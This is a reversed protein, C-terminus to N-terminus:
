DTPISRLTTLGGQKFFCPPSKKDKKSRAYKSGNKDRVNAEKSFTVPDKGSAPAGIKLGIPYNPSYKEFSKQYPKEM